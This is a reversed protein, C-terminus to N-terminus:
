LGALMDELTTGNSRVEFVLKARHKNLLEVLKEPSDRAMDNIQNYAETRASSENWISRTAIVLDGLRIQLEGVPTQSENGNRAATNATAFPNVSPKDSM